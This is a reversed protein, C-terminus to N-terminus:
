SPFCIERKYWPAAEGHHANKQAQFNEREEQKLGERM